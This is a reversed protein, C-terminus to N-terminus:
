NFPKRYETVIYFDGTVDSAECYGGLVDSERWTWGDELVEQAGDISGNAKIAFVRGELGTEPYYRVTANKLGKVRIARRFRASVTPWERVSVTGDTQDVFLRCERHESRSFHFVGEGDVLKTECGIPLPAGMPTKIRVDATTDRSYVDLWVAGESRHLLIVPSTGADKKDSSISWGFESLAAHIDSLELKIDIKMIRKHTPASALAKERGYIIVGIGSDAASTLKEALEVDHPVPSILVSKKYLDTSHAKFNDTSVVASLPLGTNIADQIYNDGENMERLLEPDQTTTYERMPYVWVLPGIEDPADKEAKLIHPLPENVCASPMDGFSNDVTLINLSNAAEVAGDKNIRSIAMPLYIDYPAGDYRDYWPSNVWWPDHIYYRFPFTENPLEAVRTMHGMIELGLNDNLAAWPSNPPAVIDLKANYIDWLPVGDTAYDIGVSNNTGRVELPIDPCAERFLRWFDFVKKKTIELKEPYYNEGDFIKGTKSWPDASFGLGNSLWLYDFGLAPLFKKSQEGLFTGFLLGEPIGDPYAAYRRTDAHLAATSDVFGFRDLKHGTSVELHRKYKFDSVAFEPGIDFTEGVLVTADPLAKKGEEKLAKVIKGLVRYTMRPPNKMYPRKLRHLSVNSPHTEDWEPRNATGIWECWEFEEDLDGSWDLLESGDACWLMVAVNKRDKILPRWDEFLRRCVERIYDDDTRKFPKLSMELTIRNFM